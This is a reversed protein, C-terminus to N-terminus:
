AEIKAKAYKKQWNIIVPILVITPGLWILVVPVYNVLFGPNNVLFATTGAIFAGTMRGIHERLWEKEDSALRRGTFRRFDKWVDPLSLLGFVLLVIRGSEPSFLGYALMAFCNATFVFYVFWDTKSILPSIDNARWKLFRKGMYFAYFTFPGLALLFLNWHQISMYIATTTAIFMLWYFAKGMKQHRKDGKRLFIVLLGILFALYGALIHIPLIIKFLSEM